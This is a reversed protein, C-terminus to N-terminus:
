GEEGTDRGRGVKHGTTWGDLNTPGGSYASSKLQSRFQYHYDIVVDMIGAPIEFGGRRNASNGMEKYGDWGPVTLSPFHSTNLGGELYVKDM